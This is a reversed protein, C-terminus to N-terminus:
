AAKVSHVSARVRYREQAFVARYAPNKAEAQEMAAYVTPAVIRAERTPFGVKHLLVRYVRDADM